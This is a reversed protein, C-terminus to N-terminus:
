GGLTGPSRTWHSQPMTSPRQFTPRTRRRRAALPSVGTNPILGFTPKISVLGQAAAPIQISGGTEEGMGLVAFSASVATATGSSSGGPAIARDYANYTPGDWSTNAERETPASDPCTQRASSSQVPRRMAGCGACRSGPGLGGWWGPQQIWFVWRNLTIGRRGDTGGLRRNDARRCRASAWDCRIRRGACAAVEMADPAFSIFANYNPEYVEIRDLFAQTVEVASLSGDRLWGRDAEGDTRRRKNRPSGRGPGDHRLLRVSDCSTNSANPPCCSAPLRNVCGRIDPCCRGTRLRVAGERQGKEYGGDVFATVMDGSDFLQDGNWDGESWGAGAGHVNRWEDARGKEYLGAAFVQLMDGSNFEGNLDADGFWTHKLDKVWVSHDVHDVTADGNARQIERQERLARDGM